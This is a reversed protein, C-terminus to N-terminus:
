KDCRIKFIAKRIHTQNGVLPAHADNPFFVAFQGIGVNIWVNPACDFFEIDRKEDYGLGNKLSGADLWGYEEDSSLPIQIDIHYRHQEPKAVERTRMPEVGIFLRINPHNTPIEGDNLQHFDLQQLLNMAVAFDSHLAIYRQAQSINDVIM